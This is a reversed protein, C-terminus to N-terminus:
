RPKNPLQGANPKSPAVFEEVIPMAQESLPIAVGSKPKNAGPAATPQTQAPTPKTPAAAPKTPVAAPTDPLPSPEVSERNTVAGGAEVPGTEAAKIADQLDQPLAEVATDPANEIVDPDPEIITAGTPASEGTPPEIALTRPTDLSISGEPPPPTSVSGLTSTERAPREGAAVAEPATIKAAGDQTRWVLLVERSRELLATPQATIAAYPKTPDKKVSTVRAVPYDPPFRGDLGSSVLLDGEVIDASNALNPIEMVDAVGTGVAIARLGNRNVQVPTAHNPDTILMGTSSFLGLHVVQGMLGHADLLPQGLYVGDFSGKNVVVQRTFSELTVALLEGILVHEGIKKTSQLLERLRDNEVQLASLKLLSAQLIIMEKELESNHQILSERSSVKADMWDYATNPASVLSQIPFVVVSLVSRFGELYHQRHDIM